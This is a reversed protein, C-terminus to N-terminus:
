STKKMFDSIALEVKCDLTDSWDEDLNNIDIEVTITKKM